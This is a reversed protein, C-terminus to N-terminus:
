LCHSGLQSQVDVSYPYLNKEEIFSYLQFFSAERASQYNAGAGEFTIREWYVAFYNGVTGSIRCNLGTDQYFGECFSRASRESSFERRLSLVSNLRCSVFKSDFEYAGVEFGYFEAEDESMEVQEFYSPNEESFAISHYGLFFVVIKLFLSM